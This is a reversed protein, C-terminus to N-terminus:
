SNSEKGRTCESKAQTLISNNQLKKKNDKTMFSFLRRRMRELFVKKPLSFDLRRKFSPFKLFKRDEPVQPSHHKEM